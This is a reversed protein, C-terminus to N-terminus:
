RNSGGWEPLDVTQGVLKHACEGLFQIRGDRVFSHCVMCSFPEPEEPHERNYSCWCDEGTAEFGSAFHGSRVLVSPSFTPHDSDGNWTWRGPEISVTHSCDCGPYHFALFGPGTAYLKSV